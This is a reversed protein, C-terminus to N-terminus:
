CVLADLDAFFEEINDYSKSLPSNNIEEEVDPRLRYDAAKCIPCEDSDVSVFPLTKAYRLFNRAEASKSNITITTMISCIYFLYVFNMGNEHLTKVIDISM